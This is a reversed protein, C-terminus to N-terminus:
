HRVSRSKDNKKNKKINLEEIYRSIFEADPYSRLLRECFMLHSQMTVRGAEFDMITLQLLEKAPKHRERISM